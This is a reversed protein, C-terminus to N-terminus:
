LLSIPQTIAEQNVAAPRFPEDGTTPLSLWDGSLSRVTVWRFTAAVCLPRPLHQLADASCLVTLVNVTAGELVFRVGFLDNACIALSPM